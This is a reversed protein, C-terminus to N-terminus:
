SMCGKCSTTPRGSAEFRASASASASMQKDRYVCAVDNDDDDDDNDDNDDDEEEEEEERRGNSYQFLWGSPRQDGAGGHSRPLSMHKREAGDLPIHSLWAQRAAQRGPHRVYIARADIAFCFTRSRRGRSCDSTQPHPPPPPRQLLLSAFFYANNHNNNNDHIAAHADMWTTGFPPVCFMLARERERERRPRHHIPHIPVSQKREMSLLSSSVVVRRCTRVARSPETGHNAPRDVERRGENCCCRGLMLYLIYM